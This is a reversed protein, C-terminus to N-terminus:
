REDGDADGPLAREVRDWADRSAQKAKEWSLKSNGRSADWNRKMDGEVDDWKREAYKGRGEWGYRYAPGYDDFTSGPQVYPRSQYNTRWYDEEVTPNVSEAIGKGALGGALGGVAAGVATGVPGAVSGIAAGAAAGATAGAGVGVPHAGPAGSIPDRNADSTEDDELEVTRNKDDTM